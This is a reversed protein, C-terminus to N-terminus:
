RESRYYDVTVTTRGTVTPAHLADALFGRGVFPMAVDLQVCIVYVAGPILAPEASPQECSEGKRHISLRGGHLDQEDLSLRMADTARELATSSSEALVFSRGAEKAAAGAAFVAHQVAFVSVALYSIPILLMISLGILEILATGQEGRIGKM